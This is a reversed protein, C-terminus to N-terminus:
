RIRKFGLTRKTPEQALTSQDVFTNPVTHQCFRCVLPGYVRHVYGISVDIRTRDHYFFDSERELAQRTHCCPCWNNKKLDVTAEGVWGVCREEQMERLRAVWTM